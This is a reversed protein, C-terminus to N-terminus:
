ILKRRKCYNRVAVTSCEFIQAIETCTKEKLLKKLDIDSINIKKKTGGCEPCGNGVTHYAPKQWFSGHFKCIIEIKNHCGHYNVNTYDYKNGHIDKARAIFDERNYSIKKAVTKYSCEPCGKGALHNDPTQYFFGHDLCKIKIKNKSITYKISTYDYKIGHVIRAKEEFLESKGNIRGSCRPCGKGQLHSNPIQLFIDHKKCIIKVPTKWNIYLRHIIINQVM